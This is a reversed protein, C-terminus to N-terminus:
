RNMAQRREVTEPKTSQKRVGRAPHHGARTFKLTFFAPHSLKVKLLNATRGPTYSTEHPSKLMLGEGGGSQFEQLKAFVDRRDTIVSYEIASAHPADKIMAAATQMREDWRGTFGPLDFVVFRVGPKFYERGFQVASRATEFGGRGAWIEGDLAFRPLGETFWEPADIVSGQRTWFCRGDWVARCGDLKESVFWGLPDEGDYDRGHSLARPNM